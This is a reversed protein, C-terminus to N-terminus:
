TKESYLKRKLMAKSNCTDSFHITQQGILIIIKELFSLDNFIGIPFLSLLAVSFTLPSKM